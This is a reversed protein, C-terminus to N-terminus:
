KPILGAIFKVFDEIEQNVSAKELAKFYENCKGL